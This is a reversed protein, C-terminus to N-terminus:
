GRLILAEEAAIGEQNSAVKDISQLTSEIDGYIYLLYFDSVPEYFRESEALRTLKQTSNHLPLISKELKVLRSDFKTLIALHGFEMNSYIKLFRM